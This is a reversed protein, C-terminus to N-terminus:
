VVNVLLTITCGVSDQIVAYYTGTTPANWHFVDNQNSRSNSVYPPTGGTINYTIYYGTSQTYTASLATTPRNITNIPLSLQNGTCLSDKINLTLLSNIQQSIRIENVGTTLSNGLYNTTTTYNVGDIAYTLTYPATGCIEYQGATCSEIKFKILYYNPNCQKANNISPDNFSIVPKVPKYITVIETDTQGNRDTATVTYVGKCLNLTNAAATQYSTGAPINLNPGTALITYPSTGGSVYIDFSGNCSSDCNDNVANRITLNVPPPADVIVQNTCTAAPTDSDTVTFTNTGYPINNLVQNIASSYPGLNLIQGNTLTGTINYPPIGGDVIMLIQGDSSTQTTPEQTVTYRCNLAPPGYVIVDKVVIFGTADTATIQYDGAALGTIIGSTTATLPGLNYSTTNIGIWTYTYPSTGGVFTFSISGNNNGNQTTNTVTTDIIFRNLELRTCETLYDSNIKNIATKGPIIGFYMYFSNNKGYFGIPNNFTFNRFQMYLVGNNNASIAPSNINFSTGQAPNNINTTPIPPYSSISPGNINLLCFSNRVYRSFSNLTDAPDTTDYIENIGIYSPEVGVGEPVDVALECQRRINQAQTQNYSIGICNISFFLGIIGSTYTNDTAPDNPEPAEKVLPPIEYTTDDLFQIIKPFGQWDCNTISGLNVLDTAFLPRDSGDITIPPYYLNNDYKVLLGNELYENRQLKEDYFTTDVLLNSRCTNYGTGGNSAPGCYTECFKERGKRRKKYKLLYYYLTGNIWENYFDFQFLGLQEAIAASVCEIFDAIDDACPAVEYEREEDSPCKIKILKIGSFPYWSFGLAEFGIGRLWCLFANIAWVIGAVLNIILCIISFLINGKTYTRSYPMPNKDGVCADVEKIGTYTKSKKSATTREFRAIFNKVSYIKNWYIDRFNEPTDKTSEDFSFDLNAKTKPNNPVLYKGRTRQRGVSGFEDMGIRFRVRARTPIGRNTDESPVIDGFENTVVYDLNMPIQYAWVGNEDIVRGGQADYSEVDGDLTIRLMEITGESTIQQCMKGIDKRPRCRKNVSNKKSDGFLSGMFVASPRINYNLDVDIRNIGIECTDQNGWFPQVNVGTNITKVQPLTNLNKSSKFKTSSEFMQKPTGQEILDYPKQSVLGIDSIDADIHLIQQGVPVGFLMFDGAYNTTTTFKYYKCYVYSVEENDLIERKSPFTGIPTYCDDRNDSEKPLLNYRVGDSDKDNVTEYPYLGSITTNEKDIDDIPIFISVKANPVGFGNAITVRGVVVGYDSCFNEYVKDQSISLSLIEIFDFKQEIKVNLYKDTGGPTTRIRINDSM